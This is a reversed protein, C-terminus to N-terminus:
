VNSNTEDTSSIASTSATSSANANASSAWTANVALYSSAFSIIADLLATDTRIRILMDRLINAHEVSMTKTALGREISANFANTIRDVRENTINSTSM